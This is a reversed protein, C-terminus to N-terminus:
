PQYILPACIMRIMDPLENHDEYWIVHVGLEELQSEITNFHIKNKEVDETRFMDNRRLFAYHRCENDTESRSIDLLRRLNPDTMSMGIFFCTNRDLAHLQEINSWHFSEKYIKHYDLESLIPRTIIGPNNRPILGHVHYVPFEQRYNKSKGSIRAVTAGRNELAIEVLDDYNYTIISDVHHSEVVYEDDRALVADCISSILDSEELRVNKYLVHSRLYNSVADISDDTAVYRGLIIPSMGCWSYVKKFEEKKNLKKFHRMVKRLLTEWSPGGAAMSVGAGLFFTSKTERFSYKASELLNERRDKWDKEFRDVADQVKLVQTISKLFEDVQIIEIHKEKKVQALTRKSYEDCEQYLLYVGAEPYKARHRKACETLRYITDSAIREKYDFCSHPPIHLRRIGSMTYLDFQYNFELIQEPKVFDVHELEKQARFNLEMYLKGISLRRRLVSSDGRTESYKILDDLKERILQNLDLKDNM